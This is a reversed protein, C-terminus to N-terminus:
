PSELMEASSGSFELSALVKGAEARSAEVQDCRCTHRSSEGLRQSSGGPGEM